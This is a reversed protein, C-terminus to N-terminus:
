AQADDEGMSDTVGVCGCFSEMNLIALSFGSAEVAADPRFTVECVEVETRTFVTDKSVHVSVSNHSARINDNLGGPIGRVVQAWIRVVCIAFGRHLGSADHEADEAHRIRIM